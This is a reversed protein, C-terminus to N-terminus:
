RFLRGYILAGAKSLLMAALTIVLWPDLAHRLSLVVIGAVLVAAGALFALRGALLRHLGEREDRSRERWVFAAFVLFLAVVGVIAGMFAPPAMFGEFPELLLALLAVLIVSVAIEPIISHAM